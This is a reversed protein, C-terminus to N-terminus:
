QSIETSVTTNPGYGVILQKEKFNELVERLKEERKKTSIVLFLNDRFNTIEEILSVDYIEEKILSM